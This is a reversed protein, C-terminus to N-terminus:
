KPMEGPKRNPGPRFDPVDIPINGNEISEAALIAPAATEVAKYVDFVLPVGHLVTDAFTAFAYFDMGGHGSEAAAPPADLRLFGWDMDIPNKMQWKPIFLKHTDSITRPGEVEGDTCKIHQWHCRENSNVTSFGVALRMVVDKETHMLAAQTDCYKMNPYKYSQKRNAMGVVRTVRDDLIYLLPSLDHPLYVIPPNYYRWTPKAAPDKGFDNNSFWKGDDGQFFYGDVFHFYEGEAFLPKGMAGSQVIERYAEVYGGYRAQEMMFFVKGTREVTTVIKWCEEISYTLPVEIMVDLGAEMAQCALDIQKDVDVEICIADLQEKELMETYDTYGAVKFDSEKELESTLSEVLEPIIDCVCVLEYEDFKLFSQIANNRGRPGLGVVGIRIPKEVPDLWQINGRRAGLLTARASM